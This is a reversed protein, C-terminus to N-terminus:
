VRPLALLNDHPTDNPESRVYKVGNISTAPRLYPYNPAINVKISNPSKVLHDHLTARPYFGPENSNQNFFIRVTYTARDIKKTFSNKPREKTM